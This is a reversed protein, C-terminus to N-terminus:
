PLCKCSFAEPSDKLRLGFKERDPFELLLDSDPDIKTIPPIDEFSKFCSKVQSALDKIRYHSESGMGTANARRKFEIVASGLHALYRMAVEIFGDIGEGTKTEFVEWYHFAWFLIEWCRGRAYAMEYREKAPIANADHKMLTAPSSVGPESQYTRSDLVNGLILLNCFSLLNLLSDFDTLQPIHGFEIM